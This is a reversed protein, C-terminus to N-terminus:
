ESEDENTATSNIQKLREALTMVEMPGGDKGTLEHKEAPYHGLIRHADQRARQRVGWAIAKYQILSEGLQLQRDEGKNKTLSRSVAVLKYGKPLEKQMVAGKLKVKEDKKANLEKKLKKALYEPTIGERRLANHIPKMMVQIIEDNSVPM